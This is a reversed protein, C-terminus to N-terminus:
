TQLQKLDRSRIQSNQNSILLYFVCNNCSISIKMTWHEKLVFTLSSVLVIEEEEKKKQFVVRYCSYLKNKKSTPKLVFIRLQLSKLHSITCHIEICLCPNLPPTSPSNVDELFIKIQLTIIEHIKITITKIPRITM